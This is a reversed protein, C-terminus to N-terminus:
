PKKKISEAALNGVSISDSKRNDYMPRIEQSFVDM